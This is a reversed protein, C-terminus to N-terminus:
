RMCESFQGFLHVSVPQTLVALVFGVCVSVVSEIFSM